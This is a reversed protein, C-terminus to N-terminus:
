IYKNQPKPLPYVRYFLHGSETKERRGISIGQSLFRPVPSVDSTGRAQHGHLSLRGCLTLKVIPSPCPLTDVGVNDVGLTFGVGDCATAPGRVKEGHRIQRNKNRQYLLLRRTGSTGVEGDGERRGDGEDARRRRRTWGADTEEETRLFPVPCFKDIMSHLSRVDDSTPFWDGSKVTKRGVTKVYKVCVSDRESDSGGGQGSLSADRGGGRGQSVGHLRGGHEGREWDRNETPTGADAAVTLREPSPSASSVIVESGRGRPDFELLGVQGSASSSFSVSARDADVFHVDSTNDGSLASAILLRTMPSLGAMWSSDLVQNHIVFLLLNPAFSLHGAVLQSPTFSLNYALSLYGASHCAYPRIRFDVVRDPLSRYQLSRTHLTEFRVLRVTVVSFLPEILGCKLVLVHM